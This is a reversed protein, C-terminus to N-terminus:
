RPQIVMAVTALMAAAATYKLTLPNPKLEFIQASIPNTIIKTEVTTTIKLM